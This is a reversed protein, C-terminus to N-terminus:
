PLCICLITFPWCTMINNEFYICALIVLLSVQCPYSMKCFSSDVESSQAVVADDQRERQVLVTYSGEALSTFHAVCRLTDPSCTVQTAAVDEGDTLSASARHHRSSPTAPQITAIYTEPDPSSWSVELIDQTLQGVAVNLDVM